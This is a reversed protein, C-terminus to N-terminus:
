VSLRLELRNSEREFAAVAMREVGKAAPGVFVPGIESAESAYGTADRVIVGFRYDGTALPGSVWELVDADFGFEGLGFAGLGLGVAASGDWGFDGEGFGALGFGCKDAECAWVPLSEGSVIQGYDIVGSGGDGYVEIRAGAPLSQCRLLRIRVRGDGCAASDIERSWDRDADGAEVAFVEVRVSSDFSSPVPCIMARQAVDATVGAFRGGVYVQYLYESEPARWSVQVRGVIADGRGSGWVGAPVECVWVNEIGERILGM